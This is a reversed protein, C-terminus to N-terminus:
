GEGKVSRARCALPYGTRLRYPHPNANLVGDLIGFMVGSVLSIILYRIM